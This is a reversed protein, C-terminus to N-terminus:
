NGHESIGSLVAEVHGVNLAGVAPGRGLPEALGLRARLPPSTARAISGERAADVVGGLQKRRKESPQQAALALRLHGAAPAGEPALTRPEPRHPGDRRDGALNVPAHEDVPYVQGSVQDHQDGARLVM